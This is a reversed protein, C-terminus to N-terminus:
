WYFYMHVGYRNSNGSTNSAQVWRDWHDWEFGIDVKGPLPSYTVSLGSQLHRKEIGSLGAGTAGAAVNTLTNAADSVNSPKNFFGIGFQATARWHPSFVHKYSTNFALEKIQDMSGTVGDVYANDGMDTLFTDAGAAYVVLGRLQDHGWTNIMAGGEIAWGLKKMNVNSNGAISRGTTSRMENEAIGVRTMLHGWPQSWAVGANFSPYNTIGGADTSDEAVPVVTTTSIGVLNTYTNTEISASLSLGNGALYTYRIQPRRINRTQLPGIQSQDGIDPNFQLPDAWASIYQGVLWPGLTGYAFQIRPMENNGAGSGPTSTSTTKGVYSSQLGLAGFDMMVVTKVEGLDSPTRTEFFIQTSKVQGRLGGHIAHEQNNVSNGGAAGPGGLALGNIAFATNGIGSPSTDTVHQSGWNSTFSVKVAGYIALSTNTGPVLFSQPFSGAGPAGQASANSLGALLAITATLSGLAVGGRLKRTIM